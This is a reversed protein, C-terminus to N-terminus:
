AGTQSAQAPASAAPAGTRRRLIATAAWLWAGAGALALGIFIVAPGPWWGPALLYIATYTVGAFLPTSAAAVWSRPRVAGALPALAQEGASRGRDMWILWGGLALLLPLVALPLWGLPLVANVVFVLLHLLTLLVVVAPVPRRTHIPHTSLLLYAGLLLAWFVSAYLLFAPPSLVQPPLENWAFPAWAGWGCGLAAALMWLSRPSEQHLYRPLFHLGVGVSLLMHWQLGTVVLSLPFPASSETGYLTVAWTGEVLWGYLGGAVLLAAVGRVRGWHLLAWLLYASASYALWTVVLGAASTDPRVASWFSAESFFYLIYGLALALGLHSLFSGVTRM